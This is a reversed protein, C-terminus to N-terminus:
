YYIYVNVSGFLFEFWSPKMFTFKNNERSVLNGSNNQDILSPYNTTWSNRDMQDNWIEFIYNFIHVHM